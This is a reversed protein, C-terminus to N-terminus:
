GERPPDVFVDDAGLVSRDAGQPRWSVRIETVSDRVTSEVSTVRAGPLQSRLAELAHLRAREAETETGKRHRMLYVKSGADPRWPLEGRFAGSAAMTGLVQGLDSRLLASGSGHAFDGHERRFPRLLGVGLGKQVVATM